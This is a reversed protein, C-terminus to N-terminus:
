LEGNTFPHPLSSRASDLVNGMVVLMFVFIVLIEAFSYSKKDYPVLRHFTFIQFSSRSLGLLESDGLLKPGSDIRLLDRDHRLLACSTNSIRSLHM